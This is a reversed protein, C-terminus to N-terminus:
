RAGARRATASEFPPAMDNGGVGAGVCSDDDAGLGYNAQHALDHGARGVALVLLLQGRSRVDCSPWGITRMTRALKRTVGDYTGVKSLPAKEEQVPVTTKVPGDCGVPSGLGDEARLNSSERSDRGPRRVLARAITNSVWAIVWGCFVLLVNHM